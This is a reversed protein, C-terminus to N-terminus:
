KEEKRRTRILLSAAGTIIAIGTVTYPIVGTGGTAPLTYTTHNTFVYNSIEADLEATLQNDPSKSVTIMLEKESNDYIINEAKNASVIEKIKYNYTGPKEFHLSNFTIIGDANNKATDVLVNNEDYIGFEFQDAEVNGGTLEKNLDFEVLASFAMITFDLGSHNPCKNYADLVDQHDMRFKVSELEKTKEAIEASNFTKKLIKEGGLHM